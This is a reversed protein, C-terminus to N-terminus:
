VIFTQEHRVGATIASVIINPTADMTSPKQGDDILDEDKILLNSDGCYTEVFDDVPKFMINSWSDDAM